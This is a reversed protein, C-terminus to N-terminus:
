GANEIHEALSEVDMDLSGAGCGDVVAQSLSQRLRLTAQAREEISDEVVLNVVHVHDFQSSARVHRTNRQALLGNSYPLDFNILYQAEPLDLGYGGANTSLFVPCDPDTKFKALAAAKEGSTLKGHFLVPEGHKEMREALYPLLKRYDTFIAVKAGEGVMTAVLDDLAALKPAHHLDPLDTRGAAFQAAYESGEAKTEHYAVASDMLLQPHDLLLRAAQMRAMVRGQAGFGTEPRIGAYYAAIDLEQGTEALEEMAAQLDGLIAKYIARTTKDLQVTHTTETVAPLYKAVEPDLRSKRIMARALNRHLLGLNKYSLVGGFWNRNIFSRDFHDWRGLIKENVWEMISFVEEPRNEVPTGTLGIRVPPKLKKIRKTTKAAFNKIATAEDLILADAWVACLYKWDHLVAGYSAIIYDTHQAQEWQRRRKAPPGDVVVCVDEAPVTLNLGRARVTRDPADTFAAIAQAWQWKLASPVLIVSCHIEGRGLMEELAAITMITKGTGMSYAVLINRDSLIRDVGERQYPHLTGTFM